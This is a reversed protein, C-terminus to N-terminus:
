NTMANTMMKTMMPEMMMMMLNTMMTTMMKTMMSKAMTMLNTLTLIMMLNTMVKMPVTTKKKQQVYFSFPTQLSCPTRESSTTIEDPAHQATKAVSCRSLGSREV